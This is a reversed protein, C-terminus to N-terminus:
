LQVLCALVECPECCGAKLTIGCAPKSFNSDKALCRTSSEAIIGRKKVIIRGWKWPLPQPLMKGEMWGDWGTEDELMKPNLVQGLEHSRKITTAVARLCGTRDVMKMADVKFNTPDPLSCSWLLSIAPSSLFLPFFCLKVKLPILEGSLPKICPSPSFCFSM